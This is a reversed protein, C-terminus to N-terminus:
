GRSVACVPEREAMATRPIRAVVVEVVMVVLSLVVNEDKSQM